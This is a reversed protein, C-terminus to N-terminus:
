ISAMARSVMHEALLRKARAIVASLLRDAQGEARLEDVSLPPAFTISPSPMLKGPSLLQQVVQWFEALRQRDIRERQLWTIPHRLYEASLVGSVITILVRTQPVKRLFIELSRSWRGLEQEANPLVAPDPDIRGSPFILLAGGEGLHRIAARLVNMRAQLLDRTPTYILYRSAVPLHQLFPIAGAVIKYDPRAVHASILLSDFTGPHNAAVLLPGEQPINETGHTELGKIFRPLVWRAAECFGHEAAYRDFAAGLEAFRRTATSLVPELITRAFSREPWGLAKFIEDMLLRKLTKIDTNFKDM